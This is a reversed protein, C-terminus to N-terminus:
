GWIWMCGYEPEDDTEDIRNDVANVELWNQVFSLDIGSSCVFLKEQKMKM